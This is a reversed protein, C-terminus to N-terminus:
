NLINPYDTFVGDVEKEKLYLIRKKNNITWPYIKMDHQHVNKILGDSVVNHLPNLAEIGIKVLKKMPFFTQLIRYPFITLFAVHAKPEINKIRKISKLSFNSFIVDDLLDHSKVLFLVKKEINHTKIELNFKIKNKLESLLDDVTVIPEGNKLKLKKLEAHTLKSILRRKGTAHYLSNDHNLVLVGDKTKQVDTEIMDAGLKVAKKFASMSNEFEFRSAGRHAIILFRTM